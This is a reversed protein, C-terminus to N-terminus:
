GNIGEPVPVAALGLQQKLELIHAALNLIPKQQGM